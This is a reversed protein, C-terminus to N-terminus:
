LEESEEPILYLTDEDKTTIGEYETEDSCLYYKLYQPHSHNLDITITDGNTLTITATGDAVLPTSVSEFGVGDIGDTGDTGDVGDIGDRGNTVTFTTQTNNTYTITYTDILDSTSTKIISAIGVGTDGKEGEEGNTVQFTQTTGDSFTITYTDVLGSTSTKVLSVVSAGPDGKEGKQSEIFEELTGTYGNEVALTYLDETIQTVISGEYVLQMEEGYYRSERINTVKTSEFRTQTYFVSEAQNPSNANIIAWGNGDKSIFELIYTKM